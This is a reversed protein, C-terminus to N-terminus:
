VTEETGCYVAIADAAFQATGEGCRDINKRFREDCVYMQGLGALIPVTCTYYHETIHKQLGAVLQQAEESDPQGGRKKCSAFDAFITMMADAASAWKEKTYHKTKGSHERYAETDGWRERVEQEYPNKM